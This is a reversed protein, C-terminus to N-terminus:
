EINQISSNMSLVSALEEAGDDGINNGDLRIFLTYLINLLMCVNLIFVANRKSKM